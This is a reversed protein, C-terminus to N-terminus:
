SERLAPSRGPDDLRHLRSSRLEWLDGVWGRGQMHRAEELGLPKSVSADLPPKDTHRKAQLRKM